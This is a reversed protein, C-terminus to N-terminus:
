SVGDRGDQHNDDGIDPLQLPPFKRMLHDLAGAEFADALARLGAPTIRHWADARDPFHPKLFGRKVLSMSVSDGVVMLCSPSALGM